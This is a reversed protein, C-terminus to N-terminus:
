LVFKVKDGTKINYKKVLGANIELVKDSPAEPRYITPETAAPAAKQITSVVTDNKIYIIDISFKMNKMWFTYMDPQEFIFLMGQDDKLNNYKTLGIQQDKSTKAVEVNFTHTGIIVKANPKMGTAKNSFQFFVVAGFIILLLGFIIIVKNISM